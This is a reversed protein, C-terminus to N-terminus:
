VLKLREPAIKLLWLVGGNAYGHVANRVGFEVNTSGDSDVMPQGVPTFCDCSTCHGWANTSGFDKLVSSINIEIGM